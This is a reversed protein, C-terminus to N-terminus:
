PQWGFGANWTVFQSGIQPFAHQCSPIWADSRPNLGGLLGVQSFAATIAGISQVTQQLSGEPLSQFLHLARRWSSSRGCIHLLSNCGSIKVVVTVVKYDSTSLASATNYFVWINHAKFGPLRHCKPVAVARHSKVVLCCKWMLCHHQEFHRRKVSSEVLGDEALKTIGLVLLGSWTRFTAEVYCLITTIFICQSISYEAWMWFVLLFVQKFLARLGQLAKSSNWLDCSQDAIIFARLHGICCPSPAVEPRRAFFVDLQEPQHRWSGSWDLKQQPLFGEWLVSCRFQRFCGCM